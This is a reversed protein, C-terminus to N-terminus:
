RRGSKRAGAYVATAGAILLFAGGLALPWVPVTKGLAIAGSGLGAGVAIDRGVELAKSKKASEIEARTKGKETPREGEPTKATETEAEELFRSGEPLLSSRVGRIARRLKDFAGSALLGVILDLLGGSLAAAMHQASLELAANTEANSAEVAATYLPEFIQYGSYAALVADALWGLPTFQLGGWIALLVAFAILTNISFLDSLKALAAAPLYKKSRMLCELIRDLTGAPVTQAEAM